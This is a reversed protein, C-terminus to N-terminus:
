PLHMILQKGIETQEGKLENSLFMFPANMLYQGFHQQNKCNLM